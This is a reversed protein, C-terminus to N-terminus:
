APAAFVDFAISIRDNAGAFPITRHFSYSPFTVMLGPQPEIRRTSPTIKAVLQDTPVGFEIWGDEGHGPGMGDEAVAVYYVGSMWAEPHIHSLQYGQGSLIVAWANIYWDTPAHRLWPHDGHGAEMLQRKAARIRADIVREFRRMEPGPDVMLSGTQIGNRTARNTHVHALSPHKRIMQELAANFSKIRAHRGPPEIPQAVILTDQGRLTDAEAGRGADRLALTKMVILAASAPQRELYADCAAVARDPQGAASYANALQSHVTALEPARKAAEEFAEVAGANDDCKLRTRGLHIWANVDNPDLSVTQMLIQEAERYRELQFLAVGKVVM